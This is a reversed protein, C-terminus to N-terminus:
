PLKTKASINRRQRALGGSGSGLQASFGVCQSYVWHPVVSVQATWRCTPGTGAPRSAGQAARRGAAPGAPRYVAPSGPAPSERSRRPRNAPPRGPTRRRSTTASRTRLAPRATWAWRAWRCAGPVANACRNPPACGVPTEFGPFSVSRPCDSLNPSHVSPTPPGPGLRRVAPRSGIPRWNIKLKLGSVSKDYPTSDQSKLFFVIDAM